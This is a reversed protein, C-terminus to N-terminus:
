SARRPRGRHPHPGLGLRHARGIVSNKSRGLALAIQFAYWGERWRTELVRDDEESWDVRNDPAPKIGCRKLTTYVWPKTCGAQEAIEGATLGREALHRIHDIRDTRM